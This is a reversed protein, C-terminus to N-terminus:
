HSNEHHHPTTQPNFVYAGDVRHGTVRRPYVQPIWGHWEEPTMWLHANADWLLGDRFAIWHRYCARVRRPVRPEMWPGLWQVIAVGDGAAPIQAERRWTRGARQIAAQMMPINVWGGRGHFGELVAVVVPIGLAAALAGHGCAAGLDRACREMDPPFYNM